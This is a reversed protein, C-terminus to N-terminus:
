YKSASSIEECLADGKVSIKTRKTANPGMYFNEVSVILSGRMRFSVLLGKLIIEFKQAM